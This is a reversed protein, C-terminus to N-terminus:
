AAPRGAPDAVLFRLAAVIRTRWDARRSGPEYVAYARVARVINKMRRAGVYRYEAASGAAMRVAESVCIGGPEALQQLRAAVNVASGYLDDRDAIVDGLNIGIRLELRREPPLGANGAGVVRQIELACGLADAVTPFQALVADGAYHKVAGDHRIVAATVADLCQALRAHTGEEDLDTLRSYGAVDAHLIAALRRKYRPRVGEAAGRKTRRDPWAIVRGVSPAQSQNPENM